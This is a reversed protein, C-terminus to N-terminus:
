FTRRHDVKWVGAVRRLSLQGKRTGDFTFDVTALDGTVMEGTVMWDTMRFKKQETPDLGGYVKRLTDFNPKGEDTVFQAAGGFDLRGLAELYAQATARPTNEVCSAALVLVLGGLVRAIGTGWARKRIKGM